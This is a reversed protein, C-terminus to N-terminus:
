VDMGFSLENSEFFDELERMTKGGFNRKQIFDRRSHKVLDRVTRIDSAVCVGFLRKSFGLDDIPTSLLKKLEAPIANQKAIQGEIQTLKNKLEALEKEMKDFATVRRHIGTYLHNLRKVANEFITKVRSRTLLLEEALDGFTKQNVLVGEMIEYERNTLTGKGVSILVAILDKTTEARLTKNDDIKNKTKM